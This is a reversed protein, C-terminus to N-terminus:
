VQGPQLSLQFSVQRSKNKLCTALVASSRFWNPITRTEPITRTQTRTPTQDPTM